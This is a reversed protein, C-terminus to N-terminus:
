FVVNFAAGILTPSHVSGEVIIQSQGSVPIVVGGRLLSCTSSSDDDGDSCLCGSELRPHRKRDIRELDVVFSLYPEITRSSRTRIVGSALIGFDFLLRGAESANLTGLSADLALNLPLEASSALLVVKVDIGGGYFTANCTRDVGVQIGFDSASSLNFRAAIGTRFADDGALMFVSGEGDPAPGAGGFQGLTQASLGGQFLTLFAALLVAIRERADM